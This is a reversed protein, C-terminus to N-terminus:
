STHKGDMYRSQTASHRGQNRSHRAANLLANAARQESTLPLKLSTEAINHLGDLLDTSSDHIISSSGMSVAADTLNAEIAAVDDAWALLDSTAHRSSKIAQQQIVTVPNSVTEPLAVSEPM